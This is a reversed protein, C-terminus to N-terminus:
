KRKGIVQRVRSYPTLIVDLTPRQVASQSQLSRNHIEVIHKAISRDVGKAIDLTDGDSFTALVDCRDKATHRTIPVVLWILETADM